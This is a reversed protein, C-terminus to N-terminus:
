HFARSDRSGQSVTKTRVQNGSQAAAVSRQGGHSGRGGLGTVQGIQTGESGVVLARQTGARVQRQSSKGAVRCVRNPPTENGTRARVRGGYRQAYRSRHASHAWSAWAQCGQIQSQAQAPHPPRLAGVSSLSCAAPPSHASSPPNPPSLLFNSVLRPRIPPKKHTANCTIYTFTFPEIKCTTFQKNAQNLSKTSSM